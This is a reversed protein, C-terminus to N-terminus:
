VCDSLGRGLYPSCVCVCVGTDVCMCVRRACVCLCVVELCQITCVICVKEGKVGERMKGVDEMRVDRRKEGSGAVVKERDRQKGQTLSSLM